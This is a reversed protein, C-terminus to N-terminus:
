MHTCTVPSVCATISDYCVYLCVYKFVSMSVFMCVCAHISVGSMGMGMGCSGRWDVDMGVCMCVVNMGMLTFVCMSVFMYVCARISVRLMGMGTVCSGCRRCAVVAVRIEVEVVDLDRLTNCLTTSQQLASRVTATHQLSLDGGRRCSFRRPHQQSSCVTSVDLDWVKVHGSRYTQQLRNCDTASMLDWVNVHGSRDIQQLRNCDTASMWIECM